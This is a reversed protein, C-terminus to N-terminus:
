SATTAFRRCAQVCKRPASRNSCSLVRFEANISTPQPIVKRPRALSLRLDAEGLQEAREAMREVHDLALRGPM